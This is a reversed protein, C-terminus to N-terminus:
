IPLRVTVETPGGPPSSMSVVGDVAAARRRLGTLGSGKTEDVGGLGDDSVRVMLWGDAVDAELTVRNAHSHKNANALLEAVCFYAISEIAPSFRENVRVVLCVPIASAGALSAFADNLGSDLVPPHLGRALMRLESLAERAGRQAADVLETVEPLGTSTLKDRAMGLNMAVAALRMQAGDHLDREVQRLLAVSDDVADARTRELQQVRSAMAGPGLVFRILWSDATVVVRTLWPAALVLVVGIVLALLTGPWTSIRIDLLGPPLPNLVLAPNLTTRTPHNRFLPWWLPYTMDLLGTVWITLVYGEALAIPFKVLSYGVARWGAGDRLRADVRGLLGHGPRFEPPAVVPQRLYRACLARYVGGARRASWLAAVVMAVGFVTLFVSCTLLIGTGLLGAILWFGFFGTVSGALCFTAERRARGTAPERLIRIVNRV